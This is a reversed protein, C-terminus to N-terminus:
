ESTGTRGTGGVYGGSLAAAPAHSTKDASNTIAQAVLGAGLVAGAYQPPVYHAIVQSNLAIFGLVSMAASGVAPWHIRKM